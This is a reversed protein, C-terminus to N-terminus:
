EVQGSTILLPKDLVAQRQPPEPVAICGAAVPPVAVSVIAHSVFQPLNSPPAPSADTSPAPGCIAGCRITSAAAISM